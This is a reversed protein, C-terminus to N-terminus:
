DRDRGGDLRKFFSHNSPDMRHDGTALITRDLGCKEGFILKISRECSFGFIPLGWVADPLASLRLADAMKSVQFASSALVSEASLKRIRMRVSYIM